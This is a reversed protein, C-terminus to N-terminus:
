RGFRKKILSRMENEAGMGEEAEIAYVSPFDANCKEELRRLAAIRSGDGVPYEPERILLAPSRSFGEEHYRRVDELGYAPETWTWFRDGRQLLGPRIIEIVEYATAFEQYVDEMGGDEGRWHTEKPFTVSFFEKTELPGSVVLVEDSDSLGNVLEALTTHVPHFHVQSV